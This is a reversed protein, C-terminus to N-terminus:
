MLRQIYGGSILEKMEKKTKGVSVCRGDKWAECRRHYRLNGSIDSMIVKLTFGKYEEESQIYKM